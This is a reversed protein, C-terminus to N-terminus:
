ENEENDEQPTIRARKSSTKAHANVLSFVGSPLGCRLRRDLESRAKDKMNVQTRRSLPGEPNGYKREIKSWSTGYKEMGKILFNLERQTWGGQRAQGSKRKKPSNKRNESEIVVEDDQLVEPSGPDTIISSQRDVIEVVAKSKPTNKNNIVNSSSGTLPDMSTFDDMEIDASQVTIEHDDNARNKLQELQQNLEQESYKHFRRFSEVYKNARFTPRLLGDSDILPTGYDNEINQDQTTIQSSERSYEMQSSLAEKTELVIIPLDFKESLNCIYDFINSMFTKRPYKSPLIISDNNALADRRELYQTLRSSPQEANLPFIKDLYNDNSVSSARIYLQTKLDLYLEWEIFNWNDPIIYKFSDATIYLSELSPILQQFMIHSFTALNCRHVISSVLDKMFIDFNSIEIFLDNTLLNHKASEFQEWAKKAQKKFASLSDDSPNNQSLLLQFVAIRAKLADFALTDLIHMHRLKTIYSRPTPTLPTFPNSANSIINLSSM